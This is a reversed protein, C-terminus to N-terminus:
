VKKKKKKKKVSVAIFLFHLSFVTTFLQKPFSFSLTPFFSYHIATKTFFFIFFFTYPFFQLSYAIEPLFFVFCFLVTPFFVTTNLWIQGGFILNIHFQQSLQLSNGSGSQTLRRMRSQFTYHIACSCLAHPKQTRIDHCLHTYRKHM